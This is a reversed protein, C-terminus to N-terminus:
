PFIVVDYFTDIFDLLYGLHLGNSRMHVLGYEESEQKIDQSDSSSM